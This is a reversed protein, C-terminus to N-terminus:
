RHQQKQWRPYRRLDCELEATEWILEGPMKVAKEEDASKEFDSDLMEMVALM